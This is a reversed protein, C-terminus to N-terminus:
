MLTGRFCGDPVNLMGDGALELGKVWLGLDLGCIVEVVREDWVEYQTPARSPVPGASVNIQPEANVCGQNLSVQFTKM